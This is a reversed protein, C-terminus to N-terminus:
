KKAAHHIKPWYKYLDFLPDNEHDHCSQCHNSVAKVMRAEAEPLPYRARDAESLKALKDMTALSPLRDTRLKRWPSQLALLKVDKPNAVHGSGPGHCSECGVHRLHPTSVDNQYGTRYGFGVTHCVVCEPDYNRQAPRKAITELAEMAHSHATEKWKAAEVAHCTFCKESGVFALKADTAQAPHQFPKLQRLLNDAKVQEAYKDLLGLTTNAKRAVDEAGPTNYEEGLAVVHYKLDFGGGPRNFVGLVGVRQGKWGVQVILTKRGAAGAVLTPAEPPLPEPSLCVIVDFLPFEGPVQKAEALTGQLLLVNLQPKKPHAALEKVAAKLETALDSFSVLTKRGLAAVEKAVSPAIVATIGVPVTGVQSVEVLGVTPKGDPRPFAEARPVFEGGILSGVNGCLMAPPPAQQSTYQEVIQFLGNTIEAKGVGIAIYGMERLANLTTGYKMIGQKPILSEVPLLDGLDIGAVPWGVSKLSAILNARRELGGLQPRSCGCPQLYGYTQGTIVLVADPKTDTPWGPFGPAQAAPRKPDPQGEALPVAALAFGFVVTTVGCVWLVQATPSLHLSAAM